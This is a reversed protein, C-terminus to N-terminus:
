GIVRNAGCANGFRLRMSKGRPRAYVERVLLPWDM